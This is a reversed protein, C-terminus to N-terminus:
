RVKKRGRGAKAGGKRKKGKPPEVATPTVVAPAEWEEFSSVDEDKSVIFLCNGVTCNVQHTLMEDLAEVKAPNASSKKGKPGYGLEQYLANGWTIASKESAVATTGNGCAISRITWGSIEFLQSM